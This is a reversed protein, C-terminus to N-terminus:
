MMPPEPQVRRRSAPYKIKGNGIGNMMTTADIVCLKTNSQRFLAMNSVARSSCLLPTTELRGAGVSHSSLQLLLRVFRIYAVARIVDTTDAADQARRRRIRPTRGVLLANQGILLTRDNKRRSKPREGFASGSTDGVAGVCM